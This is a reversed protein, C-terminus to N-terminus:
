LRFFLILTILYLWLSVWVLMAEVSKGRRWFTRSAVLFAVISIILLPILAIGFIELYM